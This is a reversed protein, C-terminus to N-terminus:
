SENIAEFPLAVHFTSGEGEISEAWIRGGMTHVLKRTMTLGIGLGGFKRTSSGNAQTFDQFLTSLRDAPIGVGTDSVSFHLLISREEETVKTISFSIKGKETFKIANSGIVSLIKRLLKLDGVICDPIDRAIASALTLEKKAAKPSLERITAEMASKLLFPQNNLVVGEAEVRSLEILEDVLRLLEGASTKVDLLLERQMPDLEGELVLDTIGIIPNLPTRLEHSVNRLFETKARNAAEALKKAQTLKEEARKRDTIDTVIGELSVPHGAEDRILQNRQNVWRTEGSKHTIQYEYYPPVDGKILKEWQEAFYGIWDPHIVQQILNASDYFEQPSYGMVEESAPNVYEYLGDPLSMRYIMDRANETIRRYKYESERLAAESEKLERTREEVLRVLDVRYKELEQETKKRQTIDIWNLVVNTIEGGPAHIPFMTAEINVANLGKLDLAPFDESNWDLSFSIIRGEEYVTRVLPMLGQKEVIPDHLVNYKGVLQEDKVNLFRKLAQNARILTGKEDSIWIAFPSQEIVRDLFLERTKLEKEAKRRKAETEAVYLATEITTILERDDFPKILYGFPYILETNELRGPDSDTTTYLIPLRWKKKIVRSVALGEMEGQLDIDLIVLDPHHKGALELAKECSTAQGCVTYGLGELRAALDAALWAEGECILIGANETRVTM